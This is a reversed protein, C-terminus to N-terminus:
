YPRTPESLPILSLRNIIALNEAQAAPLSPDRTMLESFGLIANLPTRLEHSMNALFQSKARNAAEAAEKADALAEEAQKRATLDQVHSIFYSPQGEADRVLSSSVEGCITHGQRHRYHKNFIASDERREVAHRIFTPSVAQDESLALDNVTM